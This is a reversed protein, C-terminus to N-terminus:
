EHGLHHHSTNSCKRVQNIYAGICLRQVGLHFIDWRLIRRLKWATLNPTIFKIDNQFRIPLEVVISGLRMDFTVALPLTEAQIKRNRSKVIVQLLVGTQRWWRCNDETVTPLRLHMIMNDLRSLFISSLWSSHRHNGGSLTGLTSLHSINNNKWSLYCGHKQLYKDM